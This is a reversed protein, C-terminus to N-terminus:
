YGTVYHPVPQSVPPQSVFVRRTRGANPVYVGLGLYDLQRASAVPESHWLAVATRGM